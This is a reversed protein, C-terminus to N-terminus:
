GRGRRYMPDRHTAYNSKLPSVSQIALLQAEYFGRQGTGLRLDLVKFSAVWRLISRSSSGRSVQKYKSIKVFFRAIFDM